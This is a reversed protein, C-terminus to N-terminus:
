GQHFRGFDDNLKSRGHAALPRFRKSSQGFAIGTGCKPVAEVRLHNERM